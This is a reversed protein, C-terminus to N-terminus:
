VAERRRLPIRANGGIKEIGSKVGSYGKVLHIEGSQVERGWGRQAGERTKTSRKLILILSNTGSSMADKERLEVAATEVYKAVSMSGKDGPIDRRILLVSFNKRRFCSSV